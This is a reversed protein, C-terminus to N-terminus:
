SIRRGIFSVVTAAVVTIALGIVANIITERAAKANEPEGQSVIFRFGGYIVYGVAILSAIRLMLELIAVAIYGSAKIWDVDAAEAKVGPPGVISCSNGNEDKVVNLYEYWTPLGLVTNKKCAPDVAASVSRPLMLSSVFLSSFLILFFVSFNIFYKRIM